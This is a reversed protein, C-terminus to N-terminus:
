RDVYDHQFIVKDHRDQYQPCKEKLLRSLRMLQTRYWDGIITESPELLEYYVTHGM